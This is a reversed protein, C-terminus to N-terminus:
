MRPRRTCRKDSFEEPRELPTESWYLWIGQLDPTGWLLRPPRSQSRVVGSLGVWAVVVLMIIVQTAM